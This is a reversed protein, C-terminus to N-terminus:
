SSRIRRRLYDIIQTNQGSKFWEIEIDKKFWTLQRKAYRRSNTKIKDVASYIDMKGDLHRFLEQYGVTKLANMERYSILSQVEKLLGQEMMKDVRQNIKQYLENRDMELGIKISKFPRQKKIGKRFSSYPKGTILCVEIARLLRKSNNLDVTEYFLPDLQKLQAQLSEIGNQNLESNLKKRLETDASPLREDFGNILADIYMGSGGCFVIIDNSEFYTKLFCLADKEFKSANYDESISIHDIFHHKVASQEEPSPKATGISTERFFQRSDFSAIESHFAKAVEIATETKGVATPGVIAILYKTEPM